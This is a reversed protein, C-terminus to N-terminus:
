NTEPPPMIIWLIIYVIFGPFGASFISLLAYAIRIIATDWGFWEAVGACVGGIIKNKSRKFQM